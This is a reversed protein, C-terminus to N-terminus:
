VAEQRLTGPLKSLSFDVMIDLGIKLRSGREDAKPVNM